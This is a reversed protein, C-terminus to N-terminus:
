RDGLNSIIKLVKEHEAQKGQQQYIEASKQLDDFAAQLKGLKIYAEGRVSYALPLNSNISLARTEDKIAQTYNELKLYIAGRNVYAEIKRPYIRLVEDYNVIAQQLNGMDTYILGLNYYALGYNPNFKLATYCDDIAGSFDGLKMRALGRNNYAPVYKRNIELTKDFDKIAGEFDGTQFRSNGLNNQAEAYNPNIQIATEFDKMAGLIDALKFKTFGRNNYGEPYKPNIQIATEFNKIANVTDGMRLHVIGLDNYAQHYEPNIDIAKQFDAIAGSLDGLSRKTNGRHYYIEARHPQLQVANDLDELAGRHDGLDFRVIGRKIYADIYHPNIQIVQNFDALSGHNNRITRRLVARNYFAEPNKPNLQIAQNFDAIAGVLNKMEFRLIGRQTYADVIKPNLQLVKTMDNIASQKDGLFRHAVGRNYYIEAKDPNIQIAQNYNKIATEQDGKKFNVVGLNHYIQSDEANLQLAQSFIEISKEFEGLEAYAAGLNHYSQRDKPELELAKYFSKIAAKFNGMQAIAIGRNNYLQYNNPELLIARNYDKLADRNKRKQLKLLGQNNLESVAQQRSKEAKELMGAMKYLNIAQEWKQKNEFEKARCLTSKDPMKALEYENAAKLWEQKEEFAIARYEAKKEPINMWCKKANTTDGIEEWKQAAASWKLKVELQHAECIKEKNIEGIKEWSQAAKEWNQLKEFLLAAEEWETLEVLIEVAEQYAQKQILLKAQAQKELIVDGSKTFCEIAQQYFEAQLYYKGQKRWTEASPEIRDSRVLEPIISQFLGILEPEQWLKSPKSEWINLIRSARTIAVYLLNLELQLQPKEKERLIGGRIVKGWLKESPQFFDVLFVTDFELGKIEEITFIFSSNLEVRLKAKDSEKRVLIADGPYLYTEKLIKVLTQQNGSILRALQGHISSTTSYYGTPEALYRSRLKLLQNALKVLSGVSRFNFKLTKQTVKRHPYFKDKLKEWRFDSPSIMQYSDGAFFLNGTPTVLNFLLELQIETLDQVEDCVILNYKDVPSKNILKLVERVLDIEDYLKEKQLKKQYWQAIKYIERRHKHPMSIISHKSIKAYAKESLIKETTELQKGKIIGRIEEWVLTTPYQKKGPHAKYMESFVQYNIQDQPQYIHQHNNLIELCLQQFNKFEFIVQNKSKEPSSELEDNATLIKAFQEQANNVLLHNYAIYLRKELNEYQKKQLMRYLAVTTKGTGASGNVLLNGSLKALNYEEPTLKLPLDASQQIIAKQWESESELVVWQINGLLEDDILDSNSEWELAKVAEINNKEVLSYPINQEQDNDQNNFNSTEVIIEFEETELWESDPSKQRAKARRSVDDHDLCIDQIALYLQRKGTEPNHSKDYTFILRSASNIRAEWVRKNIGKLKKVRLGSDFQQQKLRQICEWIKKQLNSGVDKRLFEVIDPHLVAPLLM